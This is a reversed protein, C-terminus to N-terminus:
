PCSRLASQSLCLTGWLKLSLRATVECRDRSVDVSDRGKFYLVFVASARYATYFPTKRTVAHLNQVTVRVVFYGYSTCCDLV